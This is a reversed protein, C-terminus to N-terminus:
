NIQCTKELCNKTLAKNVDKPVAKTNARLLLKQKWIIKHYNIM